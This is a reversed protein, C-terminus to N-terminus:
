RARKEEARAALRRLAEREHARRELALLLRTAALAQHDESNDTGALEKQLHSLAHQLHQHSSLELWHNGSGPLHSEEGAGLTQAVVKLAARLECAEV